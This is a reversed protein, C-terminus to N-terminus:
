YRSLLRKEVKRENFRVLPDGNVLARANEEHADSAFVHALGADIIDESFQQVKKGFTGVYSSATVQAFAGREVMQYLLGPHKMLRTNREPHVIVPIMGRQMVEFLMNQTYLPVDDSPFEILVYHGSVDCTLIDNHDIAELLQGNIRVEQCPFVTLPINRRDLEDQFEDTMRIVDTAHNTYRGNMHHPTMLAHTIGDAVAAQALELSTTLDKSGDDIGPLMHCHVDIMM